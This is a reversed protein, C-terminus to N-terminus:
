SRVSNSIKKLRLINENKQGRLNSVEKPSLFYLEGMKKLLNSFLSVMDFLYGFRDFPSIRSPIAQSIIGRWSKPQSFVSAPSQFSHINWNLIAKKAM